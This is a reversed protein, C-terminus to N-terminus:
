LAITKSDGWSVTSYKSDVRFSFGDLEKWPQTMIAVNRHAQEIHTEDPGILVLDDHVQLALRWGECLDAVVGLQLAMIETGFKSPFMAIMMRLTMDALTSAPLFALAKTAFDRGQFQRRRGFPNELYSQKQATNITEQQWAATRANEKKWINMM